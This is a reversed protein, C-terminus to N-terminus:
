EVCGEERGRVVAGRDTLMIYLVSCLFQTFLAYICSVQMFICLFRVSVISFHAKEQLRTLQEEMQRWSTYLYVYLIEDRDM